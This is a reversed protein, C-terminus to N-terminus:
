LRLRIPEDRPDENDAPHNGGLLRFGGTRFSLDIRLGNQM